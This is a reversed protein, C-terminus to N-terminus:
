QREEAYVYSDFKASVPRADLVRYLCDYVFRLQDADFRQTLISAYGYFLSRARPTCCRAVASLAYEVDIGSIQGEALKGGLIRRVELRKVLQREYSNRIRTFREPNERNLWWPCDRLSSPDALDWQRVKRRKLDLRYCKGCLGRAGYPHDVTFCNVCRPYKKSWM